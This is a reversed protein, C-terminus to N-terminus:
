NNNEEKVSDASSTKTSSEIIAATDGVSEAREKEENAEDSLGNELKDELTEKLMDDPELGLARRWEYRAEIKRDLKWYVDGLHDTLTPDEPEISVAEELKLLAKDYQGLQYHAWGVSDIIAGSRPSKELAKELLEFAEELNVGREAWSYGLYNLAQPEEPAIETAKKLDAEAEEWRDLRLLYEGRAVFFRWDDAYFDNERRAVVFDMLTKAEEYRGDQAYRSALVLRAEDALPDTRVIEELVNEAGQINELNFYARAIDIRSQEYFDSSVPVKRLATIAAEHQGHVNNFSGLFNQAEYLKPNLALALQMMAIPQNLSPDRLSFGAELADNRQQYIQDVMASGLMFLAIAGGQAPTINSFNHDTKGAELNALNRLGMRRSYGRRQLLLNNVERALADDGIAALFEPFARQGVPGGLTLFSVQYADRAQDVLGAKESLLALHLPAFGRFVGEPPANLHEIAALPGKDGDIAWAKLIFAASEFAPNDTINFLEARASAYRGARLDDVALTLTVLLERESASFRAIHNASKVASDFNGNLLDARFASERVDFANPVVPHVRSFQQSATVHDNQRVALRGALYEGTVTTQPGSGLGSITTCSQLVSVALVGLFPARVRSCFNRITWGFM